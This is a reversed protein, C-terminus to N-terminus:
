ARIFLLDTVETIDTSRPAHAKAKKDVFLYVFLSNEM